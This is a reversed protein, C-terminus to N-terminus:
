ESLGVAELAQQQDNYYAIERIKGARFAYVLADRRSLEVGSGKGKVLMLFLAIVRDEGVARVDQEEIRWSDWSENWVGIWHRVRDHGQWHETFLRIDFDDIEVDPDLEAFVPEWDDSIQASMVADTFRRVTEVNEQSM